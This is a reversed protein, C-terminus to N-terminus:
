QMQVISATSKGEGTLRIRIGDSRCKATPMRLTVVHRGEDLPLQVHKGSKQRSADVWVAAEDCGEIDIGVDGAATVDLEFQLYAIPSEEGAFDGVPFWGSVKAYVTRFASEDATLVQDFIAEDDPLEDGALAAPVESLVRYRRVIPSTNKAYPTDPLGLASLFKVLDVTEDRTLFRVLGQPMLSGGKRIAIEDPDDIAIVVQKGEADKLVIREDSEEKLIGQYQKGTSFDTVRALQYEEKVAKEPQLISEVLYDLAQRGGLDVLDPGVTGGAGNLSHCKICNMDARRFIAEGRAPDGKTQVDAILSKLEEASLPVVETSIGAAKSLADVLSQDNRGVSYVHRLALKAVDPSIKNDGADNVAAALKEAGGQQQLFADVLAAPDDKANGESLLKVALPAAADVDLRVM